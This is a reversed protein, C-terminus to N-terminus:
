TWNKVFYIFSIIKTFCFEQYSKLSIPMGHIGYVANTFISGCIEPHSITFAFFCLVFIVHEGVVWLLWFLGCSPQNWFKRKTKKM